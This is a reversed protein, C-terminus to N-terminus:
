AEDFVGATSDLTKSSYNKALRSASLIVMEDELDTIERCVAPSIKEPFEVGEVDSSLLTKDLSDFFETVREKSGLQREVEAIVEWLTAKQPISSFIQAVKKKGCRSVGKIGDGKDGIIALAVAIQAPSHVGWRLCALKSDVFIKEHLCYYTTKSSILQRLDKDGSVIFVTSRSDSILPTLKAASTAVVDDAEQGEVKSPRIGLFKSATDVFLELQYFYGDPKQKRGKDSKQGADCCLAVREVMGPVGISLPDILSFLMRLAMCTGANREQPVEPRALTGYFARAFLSNADIVAHNM